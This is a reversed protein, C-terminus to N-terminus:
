YTIAACASETSGQEDVGKKNKLFCNGGQHGLAIIRTLNANYTVAACRTGGSVVNDGYDLCEQMCAEFTYVTARTLDRVKGTGDATDDGSPWDTFCYDTFGTGDSAYYTKPATFNCSNAALGVTGKTVPASSM